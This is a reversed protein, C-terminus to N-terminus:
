KEGSVKNKIATKSKIKEKELGKDAKYRETEAKIKALDKELLLKREELEKDSKQQLERLSLDAIEMPDPIGNNNQDLEMQRSYVGIEAVRIRTANDTDIKYKQLDMEAQKLKLQLQMNQEALKTQQEQGQQQRQLAEQEAKEIERRVGAISDKMYINMIQSFSIKDNQIGTEALRKLMNYLQTDDSANSIYLGYNTEAHEDGDIEMLSMTADDLIYAIKKKRGRWAVKSVELMNMLCDRKVCDHLSFYPETIYSSHVINSEQGGLTNSTTGQGERERSIGTVLSIQNEIYNLINITNQIYDGLPINLTHGVSTNFTGAAQGKFRPKNSEAFDDYILFGHVQAYQIWKDLDWHEPKKALALVTMPNWKAFALELRRQYINYQYKYPKIRDMLSVAKNSNVNYIRGIYPSTLLTLSDMDYKNVPYEQMKVYRDKGIRTAEIWYPIWYWRIEEGKTKDIDYNEDVWDYQEDGAEDFYKLKGVKKLSKTVLRTVRINGNTDWNDTFFGTTPETGELIIVGRDNVVMGTPLAYQGGSVTNLLSNANNISEAGSELEEIDKDTLYERYEDIVQMFPKMTTEIITDCDNIKGSMGAGLTTINVNDCRRFKPEGNIIDNSYIEEAVLIIDYFGKNFKFAMDETRYLYKLIQTGRVERLDQYTYNYYKELAQLEKQAQEPTFTEETIKEEFFRFLEAKRKEEKISVADDNMVRVYFDFKRGLEEGALREIKSIEIPYNQHKGPMTFGKINMSNFTREIEAEDYIGNYLNYNTIKNSRTARLTDGNASIIKMYYEAKAEYWEKNKEREPIKDSPPLVIKDTIM